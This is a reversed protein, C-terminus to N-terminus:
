SLAEMASGGASSPIEPEFLLVFGRVKSKPIADFGKGQLRARWDNEQKLRTIAKKLCSPLQAFPFSSLGTLM